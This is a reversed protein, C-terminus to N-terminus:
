CKGNDISRLADIIWEKSKKSEVDMINEINEYKIKKKADITAKEDVIRDEFKFIKSLNYIRSNQSSKSNDSFRKFLYFQKKYILSFICGHFSDTFVCEANKIYGLWENPGVDIIEEFGTNFPGVPTTIIKVKLNEKKAFDKVKNIYKDNPTLFYCLIYKEKEHNDKALEIWEDKNILLTPDLVIPYDEGIIDKLIEKGKDERVSIHNFSELYKKIQNRKRGEIKSVGFSPAYAIKYSNNPLFSYYFVPNMLKPSWIQDSGCIYADYKGILEKLDNPNSYIKTTKIYKNKFENFKKDRDDFKYAEKCKRKAFKMDFKEKFLSISNRNQAWNILKAKTSANYDIDEVDYGNQRIFSQLAYAQLMSGYNGNNLWTLIAVKKM